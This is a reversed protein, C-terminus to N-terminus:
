LSLCHCILLLLTLSALHWATLLNQYYQEGILLISVSSTIMLNVVSVFKSRQASTLELKFSYIFYAIMFCLLQFVGLYMVVQYSWVFVDGKRISKQQTEGVGCFHMKCVLRLILCKQTFLPFISAFFPSLKGRGGGGDGM